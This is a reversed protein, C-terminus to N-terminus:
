ICNDHAEILCGVRQDIFCAFDCEYSL